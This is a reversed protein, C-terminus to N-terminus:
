VAGNRFFLVSGSRQITLTARVIENTAIDINFDAVFGSFTFYSRGSAPPTIGGDSDPVPDGSGNSLAILWSLTTGDEKLQLLAAHAESTPIFNIPVSVQGPNGLGPMYEKDGTTDLCTSEIQDRPGGLGTIGTACQVKIIEDDSTTNSTDLFFLETGQTRITGTTM